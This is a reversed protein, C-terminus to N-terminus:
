SLPHINDNVIPVHNSSSPEVVACKSMDQSAKTPAKTGRLDSLDVQDAHPDPVIIHEGSDENETTPVAKVGTM